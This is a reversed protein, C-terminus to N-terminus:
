ELESHTKKKYLFLLLRQVQMTTTGQGWTGPGLAAPNLVSQSEAGKPDTEEKLKWSREREQNDESM